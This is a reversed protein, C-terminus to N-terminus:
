ETKAGPQFHDDFAKLLQSIREVSARGTGADASKTLVQIEPALSSIWTHLQEHAPGTMPCGRILTQLQEQLQQGLIHLEAVSAGPANGPSEQITSKMAAVSDASHKDAIWTHGDDLTLASPAEHAHQQEEAAMAFSPYALTLTLGVALALERM